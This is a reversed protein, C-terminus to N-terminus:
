LTIFAFSAICAFCRRPCHPEQICFYSIDGFESIGDICESVPRILYDVYKCVPIAIPESFPAIVLYLYKFSDTITHSVKLSKSYSYQM